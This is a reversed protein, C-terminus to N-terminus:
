GAAGPRGPSDAGDARSCSPDQSSPSPVDSTVETLAATRTELRRFQSPPMGLKRSFLRSFYAPDDFGVMRAVTTTPLDTGALLEQARGLRVSLLYEKPGRGSVRRVVARLGAPTMGLRAAHEDVSMPLFADRALAELVPRDAAGSDDRATRLVLLLEHVAVAAEIDALPNAPRLARVIRAVVKSIAETGKLPVVPHRPTIYGARTYTGTAAGTFAVFTEDWGTDPEPGYHHPTGPTLWLLAPAVVRQPPDGARRFWGSGATVVVAVHRDLTRPGVVPLPGRQVGAGLCVLGLDQHLADPTLFRMWSYHVM